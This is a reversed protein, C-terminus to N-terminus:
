SQRALTLGALARIAMASLSPEPVAASAGAQSSASNYVGADSLGNFVFNATDIIDVQWDVNTDGATAAITGSTIGSTGTGTGDGLRTVIAAVMDAASFGSAVTVMGNGVDVLGTDPQQDDHGVHYRSLHHVPANSSRALM